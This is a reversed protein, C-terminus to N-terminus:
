LTTFFFFPSFNFPLGADEPQNNCVVGGKTRVGSSGRFVRYRRHEGRTHHHHVSAVGYTM